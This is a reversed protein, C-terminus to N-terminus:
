PSYKRLFADTSGLHAQGPLAGGVRGAVLVNGQGDVALANAEDFDSTGFQRTWIPNGNPDYKRLFADSDGLYTQGPLAGAVDGAVLVNGQGDVALASVTEASDTGFQRTWIPNGNPDYKRLFADTVGLHTQGPLAGAVWGAVLVNGQGDVALANAEDRDGTGFQRTWIPNGNPDYKRLFADFFGLHTQGPLAGAVDGAVLVNGQGDVALASVTEASDTGFQRTWIPNGNPDYKRLFADTVGLHTQGPLAGAVWGAVLVNGQGDVALANAEDRDGTGFQRTWIPNGNPDYKRLFADFFGLHTQGPLAGAVDGAVLVNGQGDVALASVTEASDTGFQRTWIPNGNPDYKRLFADSKGLHTQGPLAGTVWGAVLVNGQGDVALASAAEDGSTGFQRTWIPNGNPDYKRLFADSNGLHIQGPLAGEVQGAVLVNGQGDVALANAEDFGGTGFQRTWIPNGNPDYKRLFADTRGLPAQGPLANVVEGAVLVNGQSDVALASAKDLRDTGFQRTWLLTGTPLAVRLTLATTQVQGDSEAQLTLNYTGPAVGTDVGLVLGQTIPSSSAVQLRTVAFGVGAPAGVLRLTVAGTFGGRPELTLTFATDGGPPLTLTSPSLRISFGPGQAQAIGLLLLIAVWKM